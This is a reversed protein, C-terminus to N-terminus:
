RGAEAGVAVEDRWLFPLTWSTDERNICDSM